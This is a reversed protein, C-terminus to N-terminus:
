ICRHAADARGADLAAHLRVAAPYAVSAPRLCDSPQRSSTKRAPSCPEHACFRDHTQCTILLRPVYWIASHQSVVRRHIDSRFSRLKRAQEGEVLLVVQRPLSATDQYGARSGLVDVDVVWDLCVGGAL